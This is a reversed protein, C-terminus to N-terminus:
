FGIGIVVGRPKSTQVTSSQDAVDDYCFGYSLSSLNHEHWFKAFYNCPAAQYFTSAVSWTAPDNTAVHRNLAACVWAELAKEMDNGTALVGSGEFVANNDPKGTIRYTTGVSAISGKAATCYFNLNTGDGSLTFTGQPHNVTATHTKYYAWVEDVYDHMYSGYAQDTRFAGKCPAMIRYTGELTDFATPMEDLFKQYIEARSETIGIKTVSEDTSYIDMTVPFGFQDVQTTNGWFGNSAMSFEIWEFYTNINADSSNNINPMIVGDGTGALVIKKGLSIYLRASAMYPVQFGSSVDSLRYSWSDSTGTGVPVLTGDPKLYCWVKSENLGICCVYVQDDPYAGGTNNLFQLTMQKGSALAVLSSYTSSSTGGSSAASISITKAASL